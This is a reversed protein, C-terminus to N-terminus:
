LRKLDAYKAVINRKLHDKAFLIEYTIGVSGLYVRQITGIGFQPHSILEGEEFPVSPEEVKKPRPLPQHVVAPRTQDLEDIFPEDFEEGRKPRPSAGIHASKPSEIYKTPIEKIFRSPPMRRSTGWLYRSNVSTLYLLDKARTMGVYCLRREEELAIKSEKIVNAHPFLGEEMGVLFVVKFELGKGNHLTMLNLRQKEGESEDLSTKLSLEELFASLTRDEADLSEWEAAKAVLENLNEKRDEVTEQDEDLYNLYGIREITLKLLEAISAESQRSKIEQIIRLYDQIGERQKPTFKIPAAVPRGEVLAICYDLISLNSQFAGLRIKELTTGGIGRKPLNITRAFSIFDVGSQVMRLFALIDKIERRQYFSIGGVIVFPIRQQLLVDEFPRSQFNTRYFIVMQNLPIKEVQHHYGIQQVVFEAEARETERSVYNIKEGPGLDSWLNKELRQQNHRILGNAGDLINSHSRYNQELRIVKAGPYDKEFNLINNINAGRWSYISQDPDGVAFVNKSKASLLRVLKYQAANTDQYEDILL